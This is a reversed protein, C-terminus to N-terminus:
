QDINGYRSLLVPFHPGALDTQDSLLHWLVPRQCPTGILLLM